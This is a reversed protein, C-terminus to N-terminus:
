IAQSFYLNVQTLDAMNEVYQAIKAPFQVGKVCTLNRLIPFLIIDEFSPKGSAYEGLILPELTKFDEHLQALLTQTNALNEAFDGYSAQKKNVFYDIASQTTFEPLDMKVYRPAVLRNNYEGVKKLWQEIEPRIHEDLLKEGFNDDIYKVIDLSEPMASGDQKILIPVAKHGILGVPTTEDDNLLAIQEVPLNKLGFIM